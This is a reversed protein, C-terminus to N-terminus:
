RPRRIQVVVDGTASRMALNRARPIHFERASCVTVLNLRDCFASVAAILETSYEMAGIVVEFDDVNMTQRALAELAIKLNDL